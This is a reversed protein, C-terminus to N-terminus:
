NDIYGDCNNDKLDVVEPEGPNISSDNDDCDGSVAVYGSPMLCNEITSVMSGYGDGDSDLYYTNLGAACGDVVGDCNNDTGNDFIEQAGPNVAGNLDNCDLNNNVYGTPASCGSELVLPNGFGDGDNDQFFIATCDIPEKSDAKQCSSFIFISALTILLLKKNM